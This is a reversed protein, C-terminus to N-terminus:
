DHSPVKAKVSVSGQSGLAGPGAGLLELHQGLVDKQEGRLPLDNLNAIQGVGMPKLDLHQQTHLATLNPQSLYAIEAKLVAISSQERAIDAKVKAIKEARFTAQYKIGYVVVAGILPVVFILAYIVRKLLAM